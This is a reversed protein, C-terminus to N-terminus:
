RRRVSLTFLLRLDHCIGFELFDHGGCGFLGPKLIILKVAHFVFGDGDGGVLHLHFAEGVGDVAADAEAADYVAPHAVGGGLEKVFLLRLLQDAPCDFVGLGDFIGVRDEEVSGAVGIFLNGGERLGERGGLFGDGKQKVALTLSVVGIGPDAVAGNGAKGSHAGGGAQGVGSPKVEFVGAAEM